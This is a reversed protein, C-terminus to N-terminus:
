AALRDGTPNTVYDALEAATSPFLREVDWRDISAARLQTEPVVLVTKEPKIVISVEDGSDSTCYMEIDGAQYKRLIEYGSLRQLGDRIRQTAFEAAASDQVSHDIAPGPGLEARIKEVITAFKAPSFRGSLMGEFAKMQARLSKAGRAVQERYLQTVPRQAQAMEAATNMALGHDFWGAILPDVVREGAALELNSVHEKKAEQKLVAIKGEVTAEAAALKERYAATSQESAEAEREAHVNMADGEAFWRAELDEQEKVLREAQRKAKGEPVPKGTEIGQEQILDTLTEAQRVPNDSVALLDNAHNLTLYREAGAVQKPDRQVKERWMKLQNMKQDLLKEATRNGLVKEEFFRALRGFRGREQTLGNLQRQVMQQVRDIKDLLQESSQEHETNAPQDVSVRRSELKNM